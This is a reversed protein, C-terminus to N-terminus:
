DPKLDLINSACVRSLICLTNECHPAADFVVFVALIILSAAFSLAFPDFCTVAHYFDFPGQASQLTILPLKQGSEEKNRKSSSFDLHQVATM